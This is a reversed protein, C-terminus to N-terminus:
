PIKTGILTEADHLHTEWAKVQAQLTVTAQDALARLALTRKQLAAYSVELASTDLEAEQWQGEHERLGNLVGRLQELQNAARDAAIATAAPEGQQLDQWASELLRVREELDRMLQENKADGKADEVERAHNLGTIVREHLRELKQNAMRFPSRPEFAPGADRLTAEAKGRAIGLKVLPDDNGIEGAFTSLALAGTALMLCVRHLPTPAPM